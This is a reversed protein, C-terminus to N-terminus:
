RPATFRMSSVITKLQPSTGYAEVLVTGGAVSLVYLRLKVWSAAGYTGYTRDTGKAHMIFQVSTGPFNSCTKTWGAKVQLDVVQGKGDGLTVPVPKGADLGPHTTVFDIWDKVTNGVGPQKLPECTATHQSIAVDSWVLVYSSGGSDLEYNTQGDFSNVWAIPATFSFGPLFHASSHAGQTLPGACGVVDFNCRVAARSPSTTAVAATSPTPALTPAVTPALSPSAGPGGNSANRPMFSYGAVAILLVAAAAIGYKFAPNM